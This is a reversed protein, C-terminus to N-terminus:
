WLAIKLRYNYCMHWIYNLNLMNPFFLYLHLYQNYIKGYHLQIATHLKVVEYAAELGGM